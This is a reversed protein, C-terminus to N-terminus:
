KACGGPPHSRRLQGHTAGDGFAGQLQARQVPLPSSRLAPSLATLSRPRHAPAALKLVGLCRSHACLHHRAQHLDPGQLLGLTAGPTGDLDPYLAQVPVHPQGDGSAADAGLVGRASRMHTPKAPQFLLWLSAGSIAPTEHLRGALTLSIACLGTLCRLAMPSPLGHRLGDQPHKRRYGPHEARFGHLKSRLVIPRSLEDPEVAVKAEGGAAHHLAVAM